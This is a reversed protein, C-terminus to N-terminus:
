GVEASCAKLNSNVQDPHLGSGGVAIGHEREFIKATAVPISGMGGSLCDPTRGVSEAVAKEIAAPPRNSRGYRARFVRTRGHFSSRGPMLEEASRGQSM